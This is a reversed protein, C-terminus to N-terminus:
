FSNTLFRKGGELRSVQQHEVQQLTVLLHRRIQPVPTIPKSLQAHELANATPSASAVHEAAPEVRGDSFTPTISPTAPQVPLMVLFQENGMQRLGVRLATRQGFQLLNQRSC